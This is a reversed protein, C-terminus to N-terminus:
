DNVRHYGRIPHKTYEISLVPGEDTLHTDFQIDLMGGDARWGVEEGLGVVPLGILRYFDNVSAYMDNICQANIDNQARRIKEVNSKFLRGTLTDFCLHDGTGTIIIQSTPDNVARTVRDANVDTDVKRAKNPGIQEVLKEQYERLATESLTYLTAVAAQRRTSISHSAIICAMASIGVGAAPLYYIWVLRVKEVNTIERDHESEADAIDRLAAPTARVALVATTVVGVVGLGTLIAPANDSLSKQALRLFKSVKSM